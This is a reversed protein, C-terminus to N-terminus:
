DEYNLRPIGGQVLLWDRSSTAAENHFPPLQLHADDLAEERHERWDAGGQWEGEQAQAAPAEVAGVALTHAVPFDQGAAVLAAQEPDM